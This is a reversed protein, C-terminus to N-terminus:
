PLRSYRKVPRSMALRIFTSGAYTPKFTSMDDVLPESDEDLETYAPNNRFIATAWARIPDLLCGHWTLKRNSQPIVTGTACPNSSMVINIERFQNM